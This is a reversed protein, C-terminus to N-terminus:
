SVGQEMLFPAFARDEIQIHNELWMKLFQMLDITIVKEGQEFQLKLDHLRSALAQHMKKHAAQQPYGHEAFLAEEYSFHKDVYLSLSDLVRGVVADGQGQSMAGYLVNIMKVLKLHQDDISQIGLQLEPGWQILPM